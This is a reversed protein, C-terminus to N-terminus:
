RCRSRLACSQFPNKTGRVEFHVHNGTSKGTSGVEAIKQGRHVRQGVGVLNRSNHSYLTQTGNDHAIVVYNGYGGNWGNRSVIVKGPAAATVPAGYSAGFDVANYGHLRQTIVGATPRAYYGNQVSRSGGRSPAPASRQRSRQSRQPSAEKASPQHGLEGSPIIIENGPTLTDAAALNNYDRIEAEKADYVEAIESVTDDEEITHQVGTIPLIVLEQGPTITDDGAMDNQWRITNVSVDFMEAIQSLSDGARVVYVRIQGSEDRMNQTSPGPRGDAALASGNRIIIDGGGAGTIASANNPARLLPMNQVTGATTRRAPTTERPSGALADSIFPLIAAHLQPTFITLGVGGV